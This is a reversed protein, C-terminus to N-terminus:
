RREARIVLLLMTDLIDGDSEEIRHLRRFAESAQRYARKIAEREEAGAAGHDTWRDVSERSPYREVATVAMGARELAAELDGPKFFNVRAPNRLAQIKFADAADEEGYACLHCLVARGGPRLVRALEAAAKPLDVFQLGQRCVVVDVCADPLPIREAPAIIMRDVSGAAQRTMDTSIDLGIVEKVRGKFRAAVLGTGTAADLVTEGGQVAALRFMLDLLAGDGVWGSSRNYRAARDKFHALM